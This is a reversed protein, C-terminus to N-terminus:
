QAQDKLRALAEEAGLAHMVDFVPPSVARGTLAARLPQAIKGLKAGTAEAFRRVETEIAAAEFPKVNELSPILLGLQHRADADLVKSAKDDMALPRSAFLFGANDILDVLTKAREKLSPLAIALPKWGTADLRAQIAPGNPIFPLLTKIHGMLEDDPMARIYHGNLDALKAFDFRGPSKGVDQIDFWAIAQETSFIEDDGHSWGLRALYNRLAAPVYGM